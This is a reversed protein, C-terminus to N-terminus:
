KYKVWVIYLLIITNAGYNFILPYDLLSIVYILVFIEGLLWLWLFVHNIENAHGDRYTQVALPVGCIALFVGGVWALAEIM